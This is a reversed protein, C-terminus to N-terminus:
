PVADASEAQLEDLREKLLEPHQELDVRLVEAQSKDTFEDIVVDGYMLRFRAMEPRRPHGKYVTRLKPESPPATVAEAREGVPVASKPVREAPLDIVTGARHRFRGDFYMQTLKVLM